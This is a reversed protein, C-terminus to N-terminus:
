ADAEEENKPEKAANFRSQCLAIGSDLWTELACVSHEITEEVVEIEDARFPSLVFDRDTEATEAGIGIRLRPVEDTGLSRFISKLGNHGGSSGGSRVRLRGLPLNFDDCVIMVDPLSTQRWDVAARVAHGSQNVYTEPKMLLARESGVPGEVTKAHFRRRWRGFAHRKAFRDIVMFGINHRTMAYERGPNGIGVIIKM